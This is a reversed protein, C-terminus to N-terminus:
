SNSSSPILPQWEVVVEPMDDNDDNNANGVFEPAFDYDPIKLKLREENNDLQMIVIEVKKDEPTYNDIWEKFKTLTSWWDRIEGLKFFTAVTNNSHKLEFQNWDNNELFKYIEGLDNRSLIGKYLPFFKSIYEERKNFIKVIIKEECSNANNKSIITPLYTHSIDIIASILMLSGGKFNNDKFNFGATAFTTLSKLYEITKTVKQVKYLDFSSLSSVVKVLENIGFLLKNLAIFIMEPTLENNVINETLQDAIIEYNIADNTSLTSFTPLNGETTTTPSVTTSGATENLNYAQWIIWAGFTAYLIDTIGSKILQYGKEISSDRTASKLGAVALLVSTTINTWNQAVLAGARIPGHLSNIVWQIEQWTEAKKM